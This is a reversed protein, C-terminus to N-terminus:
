AVFGLSTSRIYVNCPQQQCTYKFLLLLLLLLLCKIFLRHLFTQISSPLTCNVFGGTSYSISLFSLMPLQTDDLNETKLHFRRM